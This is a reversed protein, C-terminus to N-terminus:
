LYPICIIVGHVSPDGYCVKQDARLDTSLATRSFHSQLLVHAKANTDSFAWEAPLQFFLPCVFYDGVLVHLSAVVPWGLPCSFSLYFSFFKRDSSYCWDRLIFFQRILCKKVSLFLFGFGSVFFYYLVPIQCHLCMQRRGWRRRFIIPWCRSLRRRRNGSLSIISSQRHRCFILFVGPNCFFGRKGLIKPHSVLVILAYM